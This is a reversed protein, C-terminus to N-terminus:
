GRRSISEHRFTPLYGHPGSAGGYTYTKADYQRLSHLAHAITRARASAVTPPIFILPAFIAAVVSLLSTIGRRLKAARSNEKAHWESWSIYNPGVSDTRRRLFWVSRVRNAPSSANGPSPM